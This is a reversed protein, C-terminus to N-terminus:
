EADTQHEGFGPAVERMYWKVFSSPGGESAAYPQGGQLNYRRSLVGLHQNECIWRDERYTNGWLAQIREVDYDKGEEADPHVLWFLEADTSMADRPTFRVVAVHDDYAKLWSTSFGVSAGLSRHTWENRAPLLPGLPKGDLSATVFDLTLHGGGGGGMGVASTAQPGGIPSDGDIHYGRPAAGPQSRQIPHGHRALEAEIQARAEGTATGGGRGYLGHPVSYSRSHASWCHYCERFNEVVLKWNAKTPAALRTAIKLEAMGYLESAAQWNGVWPEIDPPEAALSFNLWIFGGVTQVHCPHLGHTGAEFGAPMGAPYSVLQGDLDYTWAHYVCRFVATNGNPGMQMMSLVPDRPKADPLAETPHTGEGQCVRSGRHRCVNHYAKVEGTQNRVVIVSEGRGFEFVFYDGPKPIRSHHDVMFWFHEALYQEDHLYHQEGVYYAAPITTGEQWGGPYLPATQGAPTLTDQLTLSRGDADWGGYLVEPPMTVRQRRAAAAGRAVASRAPKGAAATGLLAGPLAVAAAGAAVSTRAFDRRSVRKSM